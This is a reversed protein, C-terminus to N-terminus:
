ACASERCAEQGRWHSAGGAPAPGQVRDPRRSGQGATCRVADLTNDACYQHVKQAHTSAAPLSQRASAGGLTTSMRVLRSSRSASSLAAPALVTQRINSRRVARPARSTKCSIGSIESTDTRHTCHLLAAGPVRTSMKPGTTKRHKTRRTM